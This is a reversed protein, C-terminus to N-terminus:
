LDSRSFFSMFDRVNQVGKPFRDDSILGEREEKEAHDLWNICEHIFRGLVESRVLDAVTTNAVPTPDRLLRGLLDFTPLTPPLYPLVEIWTSLGPPQTISNSDSVRSSTTLLAVFLPHALTPNHSILPLLDLSTIM